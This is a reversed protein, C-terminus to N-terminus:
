GLRNKGRYNLHRLRGVGGLRAGLRAGAAGRGGRHEVGGDGSGGGEGRRGVEEREGALQVQEAVVLGQGEGFGGFEEVDGEFGRLVQDDM